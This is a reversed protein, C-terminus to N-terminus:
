LQASAPNSIQVITINPMATPKPGSRRPRLKTWGAGTSVATLGHCLDAVPLLLAKMPDPQDPPPEKIPERPESRGPPPEKVPPVPEHEGPPPEKVPKPPQPSNPDEPKQMSATGKV